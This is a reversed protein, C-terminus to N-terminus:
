YLFILNEKNKEFEQYDLSDKLWAEILPRTQGIFDNEQSIQERLEEPLEIIKGDNLKVKLPILDLALAEQKQWLLYAQFEKETRPPFNM